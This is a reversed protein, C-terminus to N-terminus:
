VDLIRMLENRSHLMSYLFHVKNGGEKYTQIFLKDGEALTGQPYVNTAYPELVHRAVDFRFFRGSTDKQILISGDIDVSCAGTNFVETQNGYSISSYWTNLAIDYIDLGSSGQGRFSYIYRGNQRQVSTGIHNQLITSETWEPVQDIWDAMGGAGQNASRAATPTVTAWTNASISYKYVVAQNNGLLYFSDANGELVFVSTADPVVTWAASVTFVSNAGATNSAVQRIQGKGTGANIRIQYNAYQNLLLTKTSTISSSAGATITGTMFVGAFAPTGVLQGNTGWATPLNAVSKATWANTVRDYVSFGVSTTGANFFWLSGSFVQFTTTSDFAVTSAPSVTLIANTGLTNGTITGEYGVGTGSVVRLTIDKMSMVITRTSTLTTTTGATATSTSSGGLMGTPIFEGCAGASYSGSIGSSPIQIWSDQDSNYNYIGNVGNVFYTSDHGPILDSKDGDIWSGSNTISPASTAFEWAKRHLLKRLNITIAM